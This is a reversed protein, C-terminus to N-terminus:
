RNEMSPALDSGLAYILDVRNALLQRRLQIVTTQADFARRQSELVTTYPVLGREYQNSAIGLAAEANREVELFASYRDRLSVDASIGNEVEGMARDVLDLYRAELEQVRDRAQHEIAQLRGGQFLPLVLGGSANWAFDSGAALDGFETQRDRVVGTLDLRPFRNRHAIALAADAALLEAWALQLDARRALVESPVGTTVPWDILPLTSPLEISGGPYDALLLELASQANLVVQRQTAVNAREQAVTTQALYVDLAENLGSRYGQEIVDLSESLNTLRQEFLALLDNATVLAFATDIVEAVLRRQEDDFRAREIEYRLFAQRHEKATRGWVDIDLSTSLAADFGEDIANAFAGRSREAGASLSLSPLWGARSITLGRRASELRELQQKLARNAAVAQNILPELFPADFAGLDVVVPKSPASLRHFETPLDPTKATESVASVCGGLVAGACAVGLILAARTM